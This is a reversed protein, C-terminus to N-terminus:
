SNVVCSVDIGDKEKLYEYIEGVGKFIYTPKVDSENVDKMTAEGQRKYM